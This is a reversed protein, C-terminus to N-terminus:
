TEGEGQKFIEALPASARGQRTLDLDAEIHDLHEIMLKSALAADRQQLAAILDRHEGDGCDSRGAHGYLAIVLSSRAILAILFSHLVTQGAIRSVALHFEGSLRISRGRDHQALADQGQSLLAELDSLDQDTVRAAARAITEVEVLRRAEFVERAELVTPCAVSAGKNRALVVTGDRALSQLAARVLTRSAGFIGGLQDESLKTGPLLRQEAIATQVSKHIVSVRDLRQVSRPPSVSSARGNMAAHEARTDAESM